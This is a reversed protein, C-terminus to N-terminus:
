KQPPAKAPASLANAYILIEVSGGESGTASKGVGRTKLRTDDMPFTEVLYKRIVFGRADSLALEKASDGTTGTSVQIVASGFKQNQLYEGAAKLSKQNKLKASDPKDFLTKPDFTFTKVAQGGPLEAIEHEKVEAPDAYGRDKFFGRLLFNHKMADADDHISAVGAAAQTYLTNDNILKGITGHGTNIKGTILNINDTAGAISQLAIQSTDLIQNAKVFLDSVDLPPESEITEGNKLRAAEVSGFSIEVYKDGLLGASQISAV